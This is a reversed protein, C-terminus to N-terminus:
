YPWAKMRTRFVAFAVELGFAIRPITVGTNGLVTTPLGKPNYSNIIASDSCSMQSGAIIVGAGITNKLFKRRSYSINM